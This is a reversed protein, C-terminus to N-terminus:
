VGKQPSIPQSHPTTRHRVGESDSVKRHPSQNVTHPQPTDSVKPTLCRKTPLNTTQTRNHPTQCRKTDSVKKQTKQINSARPPPTPDTPKSAPPKSSTPGANQKATSCANCTR